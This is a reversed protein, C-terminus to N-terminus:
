KKLLWYGIQVLIFQVFIISTAISVPILSDIGLLNSTIFTAVSPVLYRELMRFFHYADTRWVFITSSGWYREVNKNNVLIPHGLADLKWKNKWSDIPNWWIQNPKPILTTLKTSGYDTRLIENITTISVLLLILFIHLAIM